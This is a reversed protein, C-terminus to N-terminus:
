RTSGGGQTKLSSKLWGKKADDNTGGDKEEDRKGENLSGIQETKRKM